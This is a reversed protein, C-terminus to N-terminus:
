HEWIPLKLIVKVGREEIRDLLSQSDKENYDSMFRHHFEISLLDIKDITHEELMKELVAYEAGEIDMSCMIYNDPLDAVFQSFNISPVIVKEPNTHGTTGEISYSDERGSKLFTVEGDEIWVAKRILHVKVPRLAALKAKIYKHPSPEFAYVKSKEDILDSEIASRIAKGFYFGCDLFIPQYSM